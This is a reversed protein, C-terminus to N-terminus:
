KQPAGSDPPRQSGDTAAFAPAAPMRSTDPGIQFPVEVLATRETEPDGGSSVRLQYAGPPVDFLLRGTRTEKPQLLRLYGMWQPVGDGESLERFAQGKDNVIELLPAAKEESASNTVSLQIMLFRSSPLRPGAATDLSDRWESDVVLYKLEGTTVETGMAAHIEKAPKVGCGALLIACLFVTSGFQGSTRLKARMM